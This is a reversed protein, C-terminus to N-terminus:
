FESTDPPAAIASSDIAATDPINGTMQKDKSSLDAKSIDVLWDGNVKKLHILQEEEKGSEKYTVSAADGEIKEDIITFTHKEGKHEPAMKSLGAMMDLLKDTEDTSFKKAEDYNMKDSAILFKEATRKPSNWNCSALFITLCIPLFFVFVQKVFIMARKSVMLLGIMTDMKL